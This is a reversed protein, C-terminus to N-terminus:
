RGLVGQETLQSIAHQIAVADTEFGDRFAVYWQHSTSARDSTAFAKVLAQQQASDVLRPNVVWVFSPLPPSTAIAKIPLWAYREFVQPAIIGSVAEGLMITTIVNQHSGTFKGHLQQASVGISQALVKAGVSGCTSMPQTLAVSRSFAQAPTGQYEQRTVLICQYVTKGQKDKTMALIQSDPRQQMLQQLVAPGVWLMAVEDRVFKNVMQEYDPELLLSLPVGSQERLWQTFALFERERDVSRELLTPSWALEAALVPLPLMLLISAWFSFALLRIM